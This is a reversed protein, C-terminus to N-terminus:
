RILEESTFPTPLIHLAEIRECSPRRSALVRVGPPGTIASWQGHPDITDAQETDWHLLRSTTLIPRHFALYSRGPRGLFPAPTPTLDMNM